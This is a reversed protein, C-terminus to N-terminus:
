RADPRPAPGPRARGSPPGRLNAVAAKGGRRATGITATHNGLRDAFGDIPIDRLLSQAPRDLAVRDNARRKRGLFMEGRFAQELHRPLDLWRDRARGNVARQRQQDFGPRQAFHVEAFVVLKVIRIEVLPRRVRVEDAEVAVLNDLELVRVDVDQLIADAVAKAERRAALGQADLRIALLHALFPFTVLTM